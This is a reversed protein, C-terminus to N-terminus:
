GGGALPAYGGDADIRLGHAGRDRFLFVVARRGVFAELDNTKPGGHDHNDMVITDSAGPLETLPALRMRLAGASTRWVILTKDGLQAVLWWARVDLGRLAVSEHKCGSATCRLQHIRQLSGDAERWSVVGANADCALTQKPLQARRRRQSSAAKRRKRKRKRKRAAASPDEPRNAPADNWMGPTAPKSSRLSELGWGSAPGDTDNGDLLGAMGFKSADRLAKPRDKGAAKVRKAASTTPAASAGAPPAVASVPPSWASGDFLAMSWGWRASGFMAVLRDGDRCLRPRRKAARVTGLARAEGVLKAAAGAAAVHVTAADGQGREIWGLQGAELWPASSGEPLELEHRRKVAGGAVQAVEHSRGGLRRLALGDRKGGYLRV